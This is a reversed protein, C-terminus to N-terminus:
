PQCECRIHELLVMVHDQQHVLSHVRYGKAFWDNALRALNKKALVVNKLAVFDAQYHAGPSDDDADDKKGFAM